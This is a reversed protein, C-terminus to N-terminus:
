GVSDRWANTKQLVPVAEEIPLVPAIEFDLYVTWPAIGEFVVAASEAEFIAVGGNQDARAWHGKFEFPPQWSLFLQLQRKATEETSNDKRKYLAVFLM